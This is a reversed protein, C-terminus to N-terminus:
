FAFQTTLTINPGTDTWGVDVGTLGGRSYQARFGAGLTWERRRLSADERPEWLVGGDAFLLGWLRLPAEPDDRLAILKRRLDVSFFVQNSALQNGGGHLRISHPGVVGDDPTWTTVREYALFAPLTDSALSLHQRLALVTRGSDGVPLYERAGAIWRQYHAPAPQDRRTLSGFVAMVDVFVGRQPAAWDDRTDLLLGARGEMGNFYLTDRAIVGLAIDRGYLTPAQRLASTRNHRWQGALHLWIPGALRRQVTALGTTRLLAYRYYLSGYAQDLSDVVLQQNAFGFYPTRLMRESRALLLIHWDRGPVDFEASASRAGNIGYSGWARLEAGHPAPGPIPPGRHTAGLVLALTGQGGIDVDVVRETRWRATTDTSQARLPVAATLALLALAAARVDSRL